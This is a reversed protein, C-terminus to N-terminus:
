CRARAGAAAYPLNNKASFMLVSLPGTMSQDKDESSSTTTTTAM